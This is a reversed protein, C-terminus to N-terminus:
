TPKNVRVLQNDLLGYSNSVAEHIRSALSEYDADETCVIIGSHVPNTRHLNIFHRRNFTLLIRATNAAFQLVEEDPIGQNANGAAFSTLVDHGLNQLARVTQLRFNENSYFKAMNM